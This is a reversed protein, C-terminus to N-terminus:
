RWKSYRGLLGRVKEAQDSSLTGAAELRKVYELADDTCGSSAKNIITAATVNKNEGLKFESLLDDLDFGFYKARRMDLM